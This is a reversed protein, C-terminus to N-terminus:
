MFARDAPWASASGITHTVIVCHAEGTTHLRPLSQVGLGFRM